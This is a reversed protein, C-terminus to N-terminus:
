FHDSVAAESQGPIDDLRVRLNNRVVRNMKIRNTPCSDDGVVTGVTKTNKEGELMVTGCDLLQFENMKNKSLKVLCRDGNVDDEIILQNLEWTSCVPGSVALEPYIPHNQLLLTAAPFNESKKRHNGAPEQWFAYYSGLFGDSFMRVIEPRFVAEMNWCNGTNEQLIRRPGTAPIM